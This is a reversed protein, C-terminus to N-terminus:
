KKFLKKLHPKVLGDVSAKEERTLGILYMLTAYVVATLVLDAIMAPISHGMLKYGLICVAFSLVCPPLIMLLVSKLFSSVKFVTIRSIIFVRSASGLVECCLFVIIAVYAPAGFHFCLWSIPLAMFRIASVTISFWKIKGNAQSAYYIGRTLQEAMTAFLLLRTFLATGEPVNVLWLDLVDPMMVILPIAILSMMSFGFKGATMSIRFMRDYDGQGASKMIQPKTTDMVSASVTYVHGEVQRSLSFVANILTGFYKNLLVSYGQRTAVTGLVDLVTWGAFGSVEKMGHFTPKGIHFEERYKALIFTVFCVTNITSILAMLMGYLKLKDVSAHSILIAIAFKLCADLMGVGASFIFKEHARVLGVFPSDCIGIALSFVMCHYVTEAARIRSPDINLFGNFLFIGAVELIVVLSLALMVHLWFCNNFTARTDAKDKKGLSVSLFRFSTQALSSKVFALLGIVGGIVDYVGYDSAGLSNLVVRSTILGLVVSVVLRTYEIVTNVAVRKAAQM